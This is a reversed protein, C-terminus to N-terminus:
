NVSVVRKQEVERKDNKLMDLLFMSNWIVDNLPKHLLILITNRSSSDPKDKSIAM